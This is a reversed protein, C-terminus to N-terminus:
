GLTGTLFDVAGSLAAERWPVSSYTHDAGPVVLRETTAARTRAKEFYEDAHGPPVTEDDSGNIVLLAAPSDAIRSPGDLGEIGDFFGKALYLGGIDVRGDRELKDRMLGTLMGAAMEDARAVPSILVAAKVREDSSALLAAIMGGLSVGVLGLRSDDIRGLAGLEGLAAAADRLHREPTVEEFRGSSEGCGRCDFRLSAVGADALRRSLEVLMFHAGCRQGRFGHVMAVGPARARGAPLHLTGAIEEGDSLFYLPKQIGKM